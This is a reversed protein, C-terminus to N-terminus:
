YYVKNVMRYIFKKNIKMSIINNWETRNSKLKELYM